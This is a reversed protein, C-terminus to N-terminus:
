RSKAFEPDGVAMLAFAYFDAYLADRQTKSSGIGHGADFDVRLMVPKGSTTAAQLRAAMKAPQWVPVRHDNLGGTVLVAPYRAGDAVNAYPSMAKLARYGEPTAVSGFETVNAPGGETLENRLLDSMPVNAIAGAFLDPRETLARGIAIGGASTGLGVLKDRAAYGQAAVAEAADILDRWTNPKAAKQGAVHWAEGFEGGGRAHVEVFVGGGAVWPIWRADFVPDVSIGYAGYAEVVAPAQPDRPRNARHLISVPVKAGDRATITIEDAAVNALDFPFPPNLQLDRSSDNGALFLRRPRAWSELSFIAGAVDPDADVEYIAGAYPLSVARLQGSQLDLRRLTYSGGLAYSLYIGDAAQAFATLVGGQESLLPTPPGPKALDLSVIRGRPADKLTAISLRSGVLAPRIVSETAASVQLLQDDATGVMRWAPRGARLSALDTAYYEGTMSVGSNVLALAWEGGAPIVLYPTGDRGTVSGQESVAFVPVDKGPPDGLRHRYIVEDKFRDQPSAGPPLAKLRTFYFEPRNPDWEPVAFRARDIAEPLAKGTATKLVHLVAEESGGEALTYAVYRGDPSPTFVSIAMPRGSRSLSEPDVLLREPGGALPRVFLKSMAAGQPRKLYFISGGALKASAAAANGASYESLTKLLADRAPTDLSARTAANETRLWSALAEGGAEMWRYPDTVTEGHYSDQVPQVLAPEAHAPAGMAVIVLLGAFLRTM